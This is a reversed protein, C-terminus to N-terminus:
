NELLTVECILKISFEEACTMEQLEALINYYSDYALSLDSTQVLIEETNEEDYQNCVIVKYIM